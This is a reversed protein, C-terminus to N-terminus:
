GKPPSTRRVGLAASVAARAEEDKARARERLEWITRDLPDAAELSRTREQASLCASCTRTYGTLAHAHRRFSAYPLEVRCVLCIQHGEAAALIPAETRAEARSLAECARCRPAHGNRRRVDVRFLELPLTEECRTCTLLSAPLIPGQVHVFRAEARCDCCRARHGEAGKVDLHFDAWPRFQGCDSCVRGDLNVVSVPEVPNQAARRRRAELSRCEKCRAQCGRPVRPDPSFSAVPLNRNCGICGLLGTESGSSPPAGLSPLGGVPLSPPSASSVPDGM